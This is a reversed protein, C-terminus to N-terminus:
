SLLQKEDTVDVMTLQNEAVTKRAAASDEEVTKAESKKVAGGADEAVTKEAQNQLQRKHKKGRQHMNMVKQTAVGVQCIECWFRHAEKKPEDKKQVQPTVVSEDKKLNDSSPFPNGHLPRPGDTAASVDGWKGVPLPESTLKVETVPNSSTGSGQIHKDVKKTWSGIRSNMMHKKGKLHENLDRESTAIVQCLACSWEDKVKKKKKKLNGDPQTESAGSGSSPRKVGTINEVPKAQLIILKKENSGGSVFKVESDRTTSDRPTRVDISARQFPLPESRGGERTDNWVHRQTVSMSRKDFFREEARTEALPLRMSLDLGITSPPGFPFGIGGRKLTMETERMMDRRVEAELARRRLIESMIIERRIWEKEIERHIVEDYSQASSLPQLHPHLCFQPQPYPHPILGYQHRQLHEHQVRGVEQGIFGDFCEPQSLRASHLIHTSHLRYPGGYDSVM